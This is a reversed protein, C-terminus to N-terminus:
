AIDEGVKASHVIPTKNIGPLFLITSVCGNQLLFKACDRFLLEKISGAHISCIVKVGAFFCHQVKQAEEVKGLEDFVIYSPNLCRLAIDIGDSKQIGSLVDTCLGVDNQPVGNLSAAIEGRSDILSVRQPLNSLSRTMDRLFTTKGSAPPGVVLINGQKALKIYPNAITKVEQAIRLNISSINRFTKLEGAQYVATGVIGARHGCQLTIYGERIEQSHTHVSNECLGTYCRQLDESSLLYIQNYNPLFSLQNGHLFMQVGNVTLVIPSGIALRIEWIKPVVQTPLANLMAKINSSLYSTAVYFRETRKKDDM